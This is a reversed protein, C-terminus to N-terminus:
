PAAPAGAFYKVSLIVTLLLSLSARPRKKKGEGMEALVATARMLAAVHPVKGRIDGGAACERLRLSM